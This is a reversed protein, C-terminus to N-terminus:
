RLIDKALHEFHEAYEQAASGGPRLKNALWNSELAKFSNVQLKNDYFAKAALNTNRFANFVDNILLKSYMRSLIQQARGRRWVMHDNRHFVVGDIMGFPLSLDPSPNFWFTLPVYMIKCVERPKYPVLAM